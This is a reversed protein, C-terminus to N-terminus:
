LKNKDFFFFRKYFLLDWMFAYLKENELHVCKKLVNKRGLVMKLRLRESLFDKESEKTETRNRLRKRGIGNDYEKLRLLLPKADNKTRQTGQTLIKRCDRMTVYHGKKTGDEEYSSEFYGFLEEEIYNGANM